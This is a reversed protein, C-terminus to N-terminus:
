KNPDSIVSLEDVTGIYECTGPPYHQCEPPGATIEDMKSLNGFIRKRPNM